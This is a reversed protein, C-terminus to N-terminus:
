ELPIDRRREDAYRDAAIQAVINRLDVSILVRFFASYLM